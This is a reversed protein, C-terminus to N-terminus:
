RMIPFCTMDNVLMNYGYLQDALIINNNGLAGIEPMFKEYEMSEYVTGKELIPRGTNAAARLISTQRCLYAPVQVM